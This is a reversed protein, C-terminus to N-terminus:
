KMGEEARTAGAALQAALMAERASRGPTPGAGLDFARDPHAAHLGTLGVRRPMMTAAWRQLRASQQREPLEPRGDERASRSLTDAM